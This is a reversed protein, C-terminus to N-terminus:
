RFLIEKGGTGLTWYYIIYLGAGLLLIKGASNVYPLVIRVFEQATKRSLISIITIFILALGMGFAYSIFM